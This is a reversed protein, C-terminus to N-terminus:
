IQNNHISLFEDFNYCSNKTDDKLINVFAMIICDKFNYFEIWIHKDIFIAENKNLEFIIENKGDHLKIEFCGNLCVLIESANYNSHNGRSLESNLENIYFCKSINFKINHEKCIKEINLDVLKGPKGETEINNLLLKKFKLIESVM